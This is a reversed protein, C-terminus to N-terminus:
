GNDALSKDMLNIYEALHSRMSSLDSVVFCLLPYRNRLAEYEKELETIKTIPSVGACKFLRFAAYVTYYDYQVKPSGAIKNVFIKYPSNVDTVQKAVDDRAFLSEVNKKAMGIITTDTLQNFRDHILQEANVWDPLQKITGMDAKRVGYIRPRNPAGPIAKLYSIFTNLTINTDSIIQFGKLPFYYKIGAVDSLDSVTGYPEWTVNKNAHSIILLTANKTSVRNVKKKELNSALKIIKAPPNYVSNFFAETDMPLEKNSPSLCVVMSLDSRSRQKMNYRIRDLGGRAVDNIVFEVDARVKIGYREISGNIISGSYNKELGIIDINYTSQIHKLDITLEPNYDVLGYRNRGILPVNHDKAYKLVLNTWLPHHAKKNLFIILEWTSTIHEAEKELKSLLSDSLKILKQKIANVTNPIYSLGERSPQFELEGIDFHMVLGCELMPELDGLAKDSEPIYIPYSINGMIAVSGHRKITHVGPIIDVDHYEMEINKYYSNGTVNPKLSFYCYVDQAEHQFKSFDNSEVAFKIEVGNSETTAEETMMAISPVGLENIFATYVGKRGDKIATVTFNDTYSFPSKSGLGLAGIFENSTTKTSEFYTTYIDMVQTHSLGVGHDQISFWPELSNPLHVDFPVSSKGAAVHSDVANCSLERIVARIKNAYLGSSLISFAKASQRIRFEGVEGVNSLIAENAPTNNLIM